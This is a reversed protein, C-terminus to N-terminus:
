LPEDEARPGRSGSDRRHQGVVPEVGLMRRYLAQIRDLAGRGARVAVGAQHGMAERLADDRLLSTLETALGEADAVRIGGGEHLLLDDAGGTEGTHPGFLVPVDYMAPELLNHGGLPVLSGGVFAADCAAYFSELEGLTDLLLVGTSPDLREGALVGTRRVVEIGLEEVQRALGEVRPMHRPALVLLLDPVAERASLYAALVPEDEGERTSGAVFVRRETPLGLRRRRQGTDAAAVDALPESKLDGVVHVREPRCGLATFRQRDEESRVCVAELPELLPALGPRVLRYRSFSRRSLRGNVVIVPAGYTHLARLLNPWVETEAIVVAQPHIRRVVRRVVFPVDLPLYVVEVRDGLLQRARARGSSTVTTVVVPLDPALDALPPLIRALVGVEGMSAAHFWLSGQFSAARHLRAPVRGYREMVAAPGGRDRLLWIPLGAVAAVAALVSWAGRLLAGVPRTM